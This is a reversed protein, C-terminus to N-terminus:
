QTVSRLINAARACFLETWDARKENPFHARRREPETSMDLLLALIEPLAAACRSQREVLDRYRDADAIARSADADGFYRKSIAIRVHHEAAAKAAGLLEEFNGLVNVGTETTSEPAVKASLAMAASEGRACFHRNISTQFDSETSNKM